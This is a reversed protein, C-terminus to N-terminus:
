NAAQANQVPGAAATQATNQAVAAAAAAARNAKEAAKREARVKAQAVRRVIGPIKETIRFTKGVRARVMNVRESLVAAGQMRALAMMWSQYGDVVMWMQPANPPSADLPDAIAMPLYVRVEELDPDFSFKARLCQRFADWSMQGHDLTGDAYVDRKDRLFESLQVTSLIRSERAITVRDNHLAHPALVAAQVHPHLKQELQDVTYVHHRIQDHLKSNMDQQAQIKNHLKDIEAQLQSQRAQGTRVQRVLHATDPMTSHRNYAHMQEIAIEVLRNLAAEPDDHYARRIAQGFRHMAARIPERLGIRAQATPIPNDLAGFERVIDRLRATVINQLPIDAGIGLSNWYRRKTM